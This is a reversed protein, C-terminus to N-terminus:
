LDPNLKLCYRTEGLSRLKSRNKRFHLMKHPVQSSDALTTIHYVSGNRGGTANAAFGLAVPFAPAAQASTVAISFFVVFVLDWVGFLRWIGFELFWPYQQGRSVTSRTRSTMPKLFYFLAFLHLTPSATKALLHSFLSSPFSSVRIDFNSAFEFRVLRTVLSM